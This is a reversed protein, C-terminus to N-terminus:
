EFKEASDKAAIAASSIRGNMSYIDISKLMYESFKKSDVGQYQLAAEKIHTAKQGMGDEMDACKLFMEAAEYKLAGLKYCNAAKGYFDKADFMRDSKSGFLNGFFSGKM